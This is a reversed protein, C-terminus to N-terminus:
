VIPNQQLSASQAPQAQRPSDAEPTATAFMLIAGLGFGQAVLAFPNALKKKINM